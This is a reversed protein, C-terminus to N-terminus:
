LLTRRRNMKTKKKEYDFNKDCLDNEDIEVKLKYEYFYLDIKCGLM